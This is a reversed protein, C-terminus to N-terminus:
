YSQAFYANVKAPEGCAVCVAGPEELPRINRTMAGTETKVQMECDARECWPIDVMGARTKLKEFFEDRDRVKFTHSELFAKAQAYLSEHVEQLLGRLASSLEDCAV